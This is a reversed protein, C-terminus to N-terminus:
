KANIFPAGNILRQFEGQWKGADANGVRFELFQSNEMPEFWLNSFRDTVRMRLLFRELLMLLAKKFHSQDLKVESNLLFVTHISGINGQFFFTEFYGLRDHQCDIDVPSTTFLSLCFGFRHGTPNTFYHFIVSFQLRSHLCVM